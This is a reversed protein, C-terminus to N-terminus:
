EALYGAADFTCSVGSITVTTSKYYSGDSKQYRWGDDDCKWGEISVGQNMYSTQNIAVRTADDQYHWWESSLTAFGAGTLYDSLLNATEINQSRTSYWSLDHMATQMHLEEGTEVYELTLDVAVGQNHRSGSIALFNGLNYGTSGVILELYTMKGAYLENDEVDEDDAVEDNVVLAATTYMFRTAENPRYADYIKLRYGDALAADAAELLKQATPYLLPVVFGGDALSINEYGEVVGGTLGEVDYGHFSFISSYSNTINYSLKDSLYECLNIMCFRADVYGYQEGYRVYFADGTEDLVCLATAAPVTAISETLASDSYLGLQRIPWITCYIPSLEATLTMEAPNASYTVGDADYAVVRYTHESCSLLRGTSYSREGAKDVTTVVTWAGRAESWEQLAYTEGKTENWSIKYEAEGTRQATLTLATGLIQQRDLIYSNSNDGYLVYGEGRSVARVCVPMEEGHEPARMDEGVSLIAGAAPVETLVEGSEADLVQFSVNEPGSWSLMLTETEADAEGTLQEVQMSQLSITVDLPADSLKELTEGERGTYYKVADLRLKLETMTMDTVAIGTQTETLEGILVYDGQADDYYYLRSADANLPAGWSVTLWEGEHLVLEIPQTTLIPTDAKPETFIYWGVAAMAAAALVVAAAAAAIKRKRKVENM